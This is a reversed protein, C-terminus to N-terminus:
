GAPKGCKAAEIPWTPDGPEGPGYPGAQELGAQTVQWGWGRAHRTCLDDPWHTVASQGGGRVRRDRAAAGRQGDASRGSRGVLAGDVWGAARHTRAGVWSRTSSHAERAKECTYGIICSEARRCTPAHDHTLAPAAARNRDPRLRGRWGRQRRSRGPRRYMSGLARRM